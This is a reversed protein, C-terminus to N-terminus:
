IHQDDGEFLRNNLDTIILGMDNFEDENIYYLEDVMIVLFDDFTIPEHERKEYYLMMNRIKDMTIPNIMLEHYLGESNLPIIELQHLTADVIFDHALKHPNTQIPNHKFLNFIDDYDKDLLRVSIETFDENNHKYHKIKPFRKIHPNISTNDNFTKKKRYKPSSLTTQVENEEVSGFMLKM